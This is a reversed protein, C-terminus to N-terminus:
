IIRDEGIGDQESGIGEDDQTFVDQAGEEVPEDSVDEADSDEPAEDTPAEELAPEGEDSSDEDTEDEEHAQQFAEDEAEPEGAEPEGEKSGGEDTGATDSVELGADADEIVQDMWDELGSARFDVFEYLDEIVDMEPFQWGTGDEPDAVELRPKTAEKGDEEQYLYLDMGDHLAAFVSGEVADPLDAPLEEADPRFEEWSLSESETLTLIASAVKKLRDDNM